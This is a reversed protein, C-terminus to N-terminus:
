KASFPKKSGTGDIGFKKDLSKNDGAKSFYGDRVTEPEGMSLLESLKVFHLRVRSFDRAELQRLLGSQREVM